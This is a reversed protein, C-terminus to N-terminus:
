WIGIDACTELLDFKTEIFITIEMPSAALLRELYPNSIVPMVMTEDGCQLEFYHILTRRNGFSCQSSHVIEGVRWGRDLAHLLCDGGAYAQSQPHWHRPVDLPKWSLDALTFHLMDPTPKLYRALDLIM